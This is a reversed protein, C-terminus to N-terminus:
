VDASEKAGAEAVLTKWDAVSGTLFEALHEVGRHFGLDFGKSYEGNTNSTLCGDAWRLVKVAEAVVMDKDVMFERRQFGISNSYRILYRLVVGLM